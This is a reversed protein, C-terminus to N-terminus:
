ALEHAAYIKADREKEAAKMEALIKDLAPLENGIANSLRIVLAAAEPYDKTFREAANVANAAASVVENLALRRRVRVREADQCPECIVSRHTPHAPTYTEGCLACIRPEM